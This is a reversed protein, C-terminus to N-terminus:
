KWHCLSGPFGATFSQFTVSILTLGRMSCRGTRTTSAWILRVFRCVSLCTTASKQRISSEALRLYICNYSNIDYMNNCRV